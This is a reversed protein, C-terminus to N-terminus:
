ILNGLIGGIAGALGSATPMSGYRMGAGALLGQQAKQYYNALVYTRTPADEWTVDCQYTEALEACLEIPRIEPAPYGLVILSRVTAREARYGIEGEVVLGSLAVTGICTGAYGSGVFEERTKCAHIGVGHENAKPSAHAVLTATEWVKNVVISRLRWGQDTQM